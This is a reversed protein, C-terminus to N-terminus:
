GLCQSNAGDVQIVVIRFPMRRLLTDTFAAATHFGARAHAELVDWRSVIDRAGFYKPVVGPLPRVNLTDTQLIDGPEKVVYDRPEQNGLPTADPEEQGIHSKALAREICRLEYSRLFEAWQPRLHPLDRM